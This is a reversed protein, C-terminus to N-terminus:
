RGGGVDEPTDWDVLAREEDASMAFAEARAEELLAQLAFRGRQAASLALPLVRPADYRAFFPEWTSGRRPALVAADSPDTLLRGLASETVFPMDCALAVARGEGDRANALLSLLGALPGEARPDDDIGDAVEGAYPARSAADGVLLVRAGLAACAARLKQVIPVGAEAELLGKPTGGMRRARGGVLIGCVAQGVVQM